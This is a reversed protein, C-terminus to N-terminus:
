IDMAICIRTGATTLELRARGVKTAGRMADAMAQTSKLTQVFRRVRLGPM